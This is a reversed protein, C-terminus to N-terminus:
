RYDSPNALLYRQHEAAAMTSERHDRDAGRGAHVVVLWESSHGVAVTRDDRIGGEVMQDKEVQEHDGRSNTRDDSDVDDQIHVEEAVYARLLVAEVANDHPHDVPDVVARLTDVTHDEVAELSPMKGFLDDRCSTDVVVMVSYTEVVVRGFAGAGLSL